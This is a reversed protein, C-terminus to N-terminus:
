LVTVSNSNLSTAAYLMTGLEVEQHLAVIAEPGNEESSYDICVVEGIPEQAQVLAASLATIASKLHPGDLRDVSYHGSGYDPVLSQLDVRELAGLAMKLVAEDVLIKKM